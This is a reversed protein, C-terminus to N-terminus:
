KDIVLCFKGLVCYPPPRYHIVSYNGTCGISSYIPKPPVAVGGSYEVKTNKAVAQVRVKNTYSAASNM